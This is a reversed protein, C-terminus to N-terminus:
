PNIPRADLSVAALLPWTRSIFWRLFVRMSPPPDAMVESPYPDILREFRGFLM